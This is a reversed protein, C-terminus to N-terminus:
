DFLGFADGDDEDPEHLSRTEAPVRAACPCSPVSIPVYGLAGERSLERECEESLPVHAARVATRVNEATVPVGADALLLAAYAVALGDHESVDAKHAAAM